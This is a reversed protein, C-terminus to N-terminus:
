GGTDQRTRIWSRVLEETGLNVASLGIDVLTCILANVSIGSREAMERLVEYRDQPIRLGTQVKDAVQM